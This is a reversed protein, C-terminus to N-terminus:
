QSQAQLYNEIIEKPAGDEVIQGEKLWAVRTCYRKLLDMSHSVIVIAKDAKFFSEIRGQAKRRFREDGVAFVEDILLIDPNTDTAVAFGLRARMGSSYTSLPSDIFDGLEAFEVISEVRSTIEHRKLGMIAGNFYINERGTLETRFGGGLELLPALSGRAIISGQKPPLIGAIAKLLTSKGAGNQGIIGLIEGRNITLSLESLVDFTQYQTGKFLNLVADKLSTHKSLYRRYQISLDRVEVAPLSPADPMISM